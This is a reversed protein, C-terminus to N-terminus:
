EVMLRYRGKRKSIEPEFIAGAGNGGELSISLVKQIDFNQPDVQVDVVQGNVVPRILFM